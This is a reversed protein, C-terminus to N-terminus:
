KACARQDDGLRHIGQQAAGGLEDDVGFYQVLQLLGEGAFYQGNRQDARLEQVVLTLVARHAASATGTTNATNTTTRRTTSMTATGTTHVARKHTEGATALLSAHRGRRVSAAALVKYWQSQLVNASGTSTCRRVHACAVHANRTICATGAAGGVVASHVTRRHVTRGAAVSPVPSHGQTRNM